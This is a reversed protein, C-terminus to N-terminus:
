SLFIDGVEDNHILQAVRKLAMRSGLENCPCVRHYGMEDVDSLGVSSQCVECNYLHPDDENRYWENDIDKVFNYVDFPCNSEKDDRGLWQLFCDIPKM